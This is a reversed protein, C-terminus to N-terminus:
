IHTIHKYYLCWVKNFYFSPDDLILKAFYNRLSNYNFPVSFDIFTDNQMAGFVKPAFQLLWKWHEITKFYNLLTYMYFIQCCKPMQM